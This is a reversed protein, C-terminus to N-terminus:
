NKLKNATEEAEIYLIAACRAERSFAFTGKDKQYRQFGAIDIKTIEDELEVSGIIVRPLKIKGENFLKFQAM